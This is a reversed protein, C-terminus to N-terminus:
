CAFRKSTIFGILFLKRFFLRSDLADYATEIWHRLNEFFGNTTKVLQLDDTMKGRGFDMKWTQLLRSSNKANREVNTLLDRTSATRHTRYAKEVREALEQLDRLCEGAQENLKRSAQSLDM